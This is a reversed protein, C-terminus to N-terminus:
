STQALPPEDESHEAVQNRGAEKARYLAQDARDFLEDQQLSTGVPQCALGISITARIERGAHTLTMAECRQRLSAAMIRADDLDCRPLVLAMEDGGLRAALDMDRRGEQLLAAVRALVQDGAQHGYTDNVQKFEDVDILLLSVPYQMIRGMSLEQELAEQFHRRTYLGTLADTTALLRMRLSNIAVTAHRDVTELIRRDGPSFEPAGEQRGVGWFGVVGRAGHLPRMLLPGSTQILDNGDLYRELQRPTVRRPKEWQRAMEPELGQHGLLRLLGTEPNYLVVLGFDGELAQCIAKVLDSTMQGADPSRNILRTVEQIVTLERIHLTLEINKEELEDILHLNHLLSGVLTNFAELLALEGEGMARDLSDCFDAEVVGMFDRDTFLPALAVEGTPGMAEVVPPAFFECSKPEVPISRGLTFAEFEPSYSNMGPPHEELARILNEARGGPWSLSRLRLTNGHALFLMARRFPFRTCLVETIRDYAEDVSDAVRFTGAVRLINGLSTVTDSLVGPRAAALLDGLLSRALNLTVPLTYELGQRPLTVRVSHGERRPPRDQEGQGALALVVWAGPLNAPDLYDDRESLLLIGGDLAALAQRGQTGAAVARTKWDSPLAAAMEGMGASGWLYALKGGPEM